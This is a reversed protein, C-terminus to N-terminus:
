WWDKSWSGDELPASPSDLLRLAERLHLVPPDKMSAFRSPNGVASRLSWTKARAWSRTCRNCGDRWLMMNRADRRELSGFTSRDRGRKWMQYGTRHRTFMAGVRKRQYRVDRWHEIRLWDRYTSSRTSGCCYTSIKRVGGDWGSVAEEVTCMGIM